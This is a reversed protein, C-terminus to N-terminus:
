EWELQCKFGSVFTKNSSENQHIRQCNCFFKTKFPMNYYRNCEESRLIMSELFSKTIFDSLGIQCGFNDLAQFIAQCGPNFYTEQHWFKGLDFFNCFCFPSLLYETGAQMFSPVSNSNSGGGMILLKLAKNTADLPKPTSNLTYLVWVWLLLEM